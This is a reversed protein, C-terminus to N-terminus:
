EFWFSLYEFAFSSSYELTQWNLVARPVGASGLLKASHINLLDPNGTWRLTQAACAGLKVNWFDLQQGFISTIEADRLKSITKSNQIM